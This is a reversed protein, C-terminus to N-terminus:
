YLLVVCTIMCIACVLVEVGMCVHACSSQGGSASLPIQEFNTLLGSLGRLCGAIVLMEPKKTKSQMQACHFVCCKYTVSYWRQRQLSTCMFVHVCVCVCVCVRGEGGVGGGSGSEGGSGSGGWEWEGEVGVRGKVGVGGGSGSGRWEWEGGSGSGRWEWEGGSGSGRWEWEGEVGVGRWEWEGEVGVGGGSGSGEVGVGM